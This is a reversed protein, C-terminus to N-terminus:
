NHTSLIFVPVFRNSIPTVPFVLLGMMSQFTGSFTKGYDQKITEINWPVLIENFDGSITPAKVKKFYSTGVRVYKIDSM